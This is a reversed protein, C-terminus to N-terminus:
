SLNATAQWPAYADDPTGKGEALIAYGNDGYSAGWSNRFKFGFKGPSIEVLDILTVAHSWWNYGVCVPIGQLLLTACRDFMQGDSKSMMDWWKTVRHLLANAETGSKRDSKRLSNPPVFDTSAFGMETAGRLADDLYGGINRYGTLPGGLSAPSLKVYSEGQMARVSMVAGAPSNVWCYNTGNQDLCEVGAHDIVGRNTSGSQERDKIRSSWENRSILKFDPKACYPLTGPESQRPMCGMFRREGGNNPHDDPLIVSGDDHQIGIHDRWNDDDIIIAKSLDM